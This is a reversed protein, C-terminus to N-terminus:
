FSYKASFTAFSRDALATTGSGPDGTFLNYGVSLTLNDLRQFSVTLNYRRDGEGTLSGLTAVVATTGYFANAHAFSVTMDWGTFVEQYSASVTAQFAAAQETYPDALEDYTKSKYVFPDISEVSTGAVAGILVLRDWFATPGFIKTANINLQWVDATTPTPFTRGGLFLPVAVSVGAGDRYSLEAGVGVGAIGTSLSMAYMQIDSAYFVHYSAQGSRISRLTAANRVVVGTPNKAHAHIYHFGVMTGLNVSYLARVGWQSGSEAKIPEGKYIKLRSGIRIFQSGPGVVDSTSFYSGVPPIETTDYDFQYFAALSLNRTLGWQLYIQETPLLIQKVSTGPINSKTADSPAMLGAMNPFYISQGWAVVQSGLQVSLSTGAIAWSGYIYADLLRMRHGLRSITEEPFGGEDPYNLTYVGSPPRTYDSEDDAYAFDYFASGRFFVGYRGKEIRLEGLAAIRNNILSGSDFNRNGDDSNIGSVLEPARNEARMSLSYTLTLLYDITWGNGLRMSGAQAPMAGALTLALVAGAGRKLLRSQM